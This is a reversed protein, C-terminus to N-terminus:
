FPARKASMVGLLDWSRANGFEACTHYVRGQHLPREGCEGAVRDVVVLGGHFGRPGQLPQDDSLDRGLVGGVLNGQCADGFSGGGDVVAAAGAEGLVTIAAKAGDPVALRRRATFTMETTLTVEGDAADRTVAPAFSLGAGFAEDYAVTKGAQTVFRRGDWTGTGAMEVPDTGSPWKAGGAVNADFWAGAVALAVALCCM